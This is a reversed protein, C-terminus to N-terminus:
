DMKLEDTESADLHIEAAPQDVEDEEVPAHIQFQPPNAGLVDRHLTFTDIQNDDDMDPVPSPDVFPDGDDDVAIANDFDDLRGQISSARASSDHQVIDSADADFGSNANLDIESGTRSIRTNNNNNLRELANSFSWDEQTGYGQNTSTFGVSSRNDVNMKDYNMSVDIGEDDQEISSRIGLGDNMMADRQLLPASADEREHTQYAPLTDLDQPNVTTTQGMETGSGSTQHLAAGVGTLASSSGRLSSKADLGQGEGSDAETEDEDSTEPKEHETLIEM